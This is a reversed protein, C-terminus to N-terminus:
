FNMPVEILLIRSNPQAIININEIEWVGLADRKKLDHSGLSANGELIFIYVGNKKDKLTYNQEKFETFDGLHLWANQHIWVGADEPNPSLIQYFENEKKLDRISKQDYRPTVDQKNPFIWLQLL